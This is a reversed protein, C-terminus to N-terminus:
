LRRSCHQSYSESYAKHWELLLYFRHTIPVEITQQTEDIKVTVGGETKLVDSAQSSQKYQM